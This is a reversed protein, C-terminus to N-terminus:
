LKQLPKTSKRVVNKLKGIHNEFSFCSFMELAGLRKCENGLHIPNHVNYSLFQDGYNSVSKQIFLTLLSHAYDINAEEKVSRKCSLLRIAQLIFHQNVEDPLRNKLVIPLIYLL